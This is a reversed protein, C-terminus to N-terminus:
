DDSRCAQLAWVVLVFVRAAPFFPRLASIDTLFVLVGVVALLAGAIFGGPYRPWNSLPSTKSGEQM